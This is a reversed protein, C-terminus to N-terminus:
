PAALSKRKTLVIGLAIFISTSICDLQRFTCVHFSLFFCVNMSELHPVSVFMSKERQIKSM